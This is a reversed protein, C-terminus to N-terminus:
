QLSDNMAVVKFSSKTLRAMGQLIDPLYNVLNQLGLIPPPRLKVDSLEHNQVRQYAVSVAMILVPTQKPLPVIDVQIHSYSGGKIM